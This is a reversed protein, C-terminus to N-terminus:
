VVIIRLFLVPSPDISPREALMPRKCAHLQQKGIRTRSLGVPDQGSHEKRQRAFTQVRLLGNKVTRLM